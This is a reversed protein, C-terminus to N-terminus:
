PLLALSFIYQGQSSGLGLFLIGGIGSKAVIDPWLLGVLEMGGQFARIGEFAGWSTQRRSLEKSNRAQSSAAM